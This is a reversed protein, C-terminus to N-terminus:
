TVQVTVGGDARVADRLVEHAEVRAGPWVVTREIVGEVVAGEGVVNAGGSWSLNAALYSAPTGCDFFPGYATVLDLTDAERAPAFCADYLGIPGAPLDRVVPWPLLGVGTYHLTGFDGRDPDEVCLLRVREHDWGDIVPALEATHWGDANLVVVDRGDIWDRLNVLAGATGLAVPHEISLHVRGELHAVLQDRHHHM